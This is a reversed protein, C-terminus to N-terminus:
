RLAWATGVMIGISTLGALWVYLRNKHSKLLAVEVELGPKGNGKIAKHISNVQSAMTEITQGMLAIDIDQKHEHSSQPVGSEAM